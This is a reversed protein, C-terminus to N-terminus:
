SKKNIMYKFFIQFLSPLHSIKLFIFNTDYRKINSSHFHFHLIVIKNVGVRKQQLITKLDKISSKISNSSEWPDPFNLSPSYGYMYKCVCLLPM